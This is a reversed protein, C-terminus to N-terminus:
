LGPRAVHYLIDTCWWSHRPIRILIGSPQTKQSVASMEPYLLGGFDLFFFYLIEILM